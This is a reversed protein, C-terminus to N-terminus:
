CRMRQPQSHCLFHPRHDLVGAAVADHPLCPAEEPLEQVACGAEAKSVAVVVGVAVAVAAGLAAAAVVASASAAPRADQLVGSAPLASAVCLHRLNYKWHHELDTTLPDVGAQLHQAPRRVDAATGAKAACSGATARLAAAHALLNRAAAASPYCALCCLALVVGDPVHRRVLGHLRLHQKHLLSSPCALEVLAAAVALQPAQKASLLQLLLLLWSAKHHCLSM